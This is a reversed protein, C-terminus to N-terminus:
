HAKSNKVKQSLTNLLMTVVFKWFNTHMKHADRILIMQLFTKLMQSCYFRREMSYEKEQIQGFTGIFNKHSV